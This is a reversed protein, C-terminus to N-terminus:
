TTFCRLRLHQYYCRQAAAKRPTETCGTVTAPICFNHEM